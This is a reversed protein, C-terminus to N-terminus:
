WRPGSRTNTPPKVTSSHTSRFGNGFGRQTGAQGGRRGGDSNSGRGWDREGSSRHSWFSNGNNRGDRGDRNDFGNGRPSGFRGRDFRGPQERQEQQQVQPAPAAQVVSVSAAAPGRDSETVVRLQVIAGEGVQANRPLARQNFFVNRGGTRTMFEPEPRVFGFAQRWTVVTGVMPLSFIDLANQVVERSSGRARLLAGELAAIIQDVTDNTGPEDAYFLMMQCTHEVINPHTGLSTLCRCAAQVGGAAVVAERHQQLRAINKLSAAVQALAGIDIGNIALGRVLIAVGDAAAVADINPQSGFMFCRLCGAVPQIERSQRLALSRSEECQEIQVSLLRMLAATAGAEAAIHKNPPCKYMLTWLASAASVMVKVDSGEAKPDQSLCTVLTNIANARGVLEKTRRVLASFQEGQARRVMKRLHIARVPEALVEGADALVLSRLTEFTQQSEGRDISPVLVAAARLAEIAHMAEARPDAGTTAAETVAPDEAGGDVTAPPPLGPAAEESSM